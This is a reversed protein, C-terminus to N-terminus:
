VKLVIKGWHVGNMYYVLKYLECIYMYMMQGLSTNMIMELQRDDLENNVMKIDQQDGPVDKQLENTCSVTEHSQFQEM